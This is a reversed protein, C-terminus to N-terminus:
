SNIRYGLGWQKCFYQLEKNNYIYGKDTIQASFLDDPGLFPSPMGVDAAYYTVRSLFFVIPIYIHDFYWLHVSYVTYTSYLKSHVLSIKCNFIYIYKENYLYVQRLQCVFLLWMKAQQQGASYTVLICLTQAPVLFIFVENQFWAVQRYVIYNHIICRQKSTKPRSKM